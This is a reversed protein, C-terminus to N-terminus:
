QKGAERIADKFIQHAEEHLSPKWEKKESKEIIKATTNLASLIKTGANAGEGINIVSLALGLITEIIM